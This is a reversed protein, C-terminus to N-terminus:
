VDSRHCGIVASGGRKQATPLCVLLHISGKHGALGTSSLDHGIAMRRGSVVKRLRALFDYFTTRAPPKECGVLVRLLADGRLRKVLKFWSRM